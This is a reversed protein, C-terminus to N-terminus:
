RVLSRIKSKFTELPAKAVFGADTLQGTKPDVITLGSVNSVAFDDIIEYKGQNFGIVDFTGDNMAKLFVIVQDGNNFKPMGAASVTLAGIKGGVQRVLVSRRREGKLPDAITISVYTFPLKKETDWQAYVQDVRGQVINDSMAVLEELEMKKVTTAFLPATATALLLILGLLRSRM